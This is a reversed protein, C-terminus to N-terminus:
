KHKKTGCFLVLGAGIVLLAIGGIECWMFITEYQEITLEGAAIKGQAGSTLGEGVQKSVPNFSFLQQTQKVKQKGSAIQEKGESIQGKGYFVFILLAIGVVIFLIGIGQKFNLIVGM